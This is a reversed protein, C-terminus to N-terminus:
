LTVSVIELLEPLSSSGVLHYREALLMVSQPKEMLMASDELQAEPLRFNKPMRSNKVGQLPQLANFSLVRFNKDICV